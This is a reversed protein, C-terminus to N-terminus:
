RARDRVLFAMNRSGLALCRPKVRHSGRVARRAAHRIAVAHSAGTGGAGEAGATAAVEDAGDSDRGAGAEVTWRMPTRRTLPVPWSKSRCVPVAKVGRPKLRM